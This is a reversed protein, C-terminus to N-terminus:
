HQVMIKIVSQNDVGVIQLYYAGNSLKDFGDVAFTNTGASLTAQKRMVMRGANDVVNLSVTQATASSIKVNTIDRIVTPM